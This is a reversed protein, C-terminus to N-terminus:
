YEYYSHKGHPLYLDLKTPVFPRAHHFTSRIRNVFMNSAADPHPADQESHALFFEAIRQAKRKLLNLFILLACITYTGAPQLRDRFRELYRRREKEFASRNRFTRCPLAELFVIGCLENRTEDRRRFPQLQVLGEGTNAIGFYAPAYYIEYNCQGICRFIFSRCFRGFKLAM